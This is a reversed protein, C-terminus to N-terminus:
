GNRSEAARVGERGGEGLMKGRRKELDVPLSPPAPGDGGM